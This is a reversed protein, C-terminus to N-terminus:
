CASATYITQITFSTTGRSQDVYYIVNPRWRRRTTETNRELSGERTTEDDDSHTARGHSSIPLPVPLEVPLGRRLQHAFQTLTEPIPLRPAVIPPRILEPGDGPHQDLLLPVDDLGETFVEVLGFHLGEDMLNSAQFVPRRSAGGSDRKRREREKRQAM